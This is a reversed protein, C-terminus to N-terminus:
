EDRLAELPGIHAARRAPLWCAVLAAALTLAGVAAFTTADTAKVGFLLSALLRGAALAGAFGAALGLVVPVLGQRMVLALVQGRTAGLALRIGIEGTRRAVAYALVSYTGLVALLLAAGAFALVLLTQFRRQAVSDAEIQKMTQIASLPLERDLSSVALSLAGAAARPDSATRVAVSVVAPAREWLAVYVMPEPEKLLSDGRVDGLVGVVEFPPQDPNGRRFRKGIPHQGPWIREAARQSVLAVKRPYDSEEILRGSRLPIGMAAPYHSTIPRYPVMPREALPRTDGEVTVVDTWTQGELPLVSIVGAAVIGPQAELKAALDSYFRRRKELSDYRTAPLNLQATLVNRADFGRTVSGIRVFSTVLLGAIVLLMTSLGVEIGVLLGRSRLKAGGESFSRSSARLSDQPDSRTMRWAPASGFLLGTLLSASLAFGLARWDLSVEDARPLDLPAAATFLQVLARALVVGLATGALALIGSELLAGRLVRGQSAGLAMRIATERSRATARVLMLNALNVCGILLVAGVAGLLLWLGARGREVVFDRLPVLQGALDLKGTDEFRKAIQAQVVDLEAKAQEPTVGNRLRAVAAYNFDGLWGWSDERIPWPKCLDITSRLKGGRGAHVHNRFEPPLIGVVTHPVGNLMISSGVVGAGAGFRRRWLADSLVVVNERGAEGEEPLFTRGLEAQVRLVSFYNSTARVATLREPEGAGTLNVELPDVLAVDEFSACRRKWEMFHRANVSLTPALQRFQPVIERVAFLRDPEGYVLPRLLVSDVLSFVATNAGIALALVLIAALSFGADGRLARLAYRLDQLLDDLAKM